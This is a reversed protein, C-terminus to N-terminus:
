RFRGDSNEQNIEFYIWEDKFKVAIDSKGELRSKGIRKNAPENIIQYGTMLYKSAIKIESVVSIRDFSQTNLRHIYCEIKKDNFVKLCKSLNLLEFIDIDTYHHEGIKLKNLCVHNGIKIRTVTLWESPLNMKCLFEINQEFESFSINPTMELLSEYFLEKREEKNCINYQNKPM